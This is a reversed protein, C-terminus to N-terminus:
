AIIEKNIASRLALIAEASMVTDYTLTGGVAEDLLSEVYTRGKKEALLECARLDALAQDFVMMRISEEPMGDEGPYVQFPDGAPVGQDADTDLYPNM